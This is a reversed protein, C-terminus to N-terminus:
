EDVAEPGEGESETLGDHLLDSTLTGLALKVRRALDELQEPVSEIEAAKFASFLMSQLAANRRQVYGLYASTQDRGARSALQSFLMATRQELDDQLQGEAPFLYELVEDAPLEQDASRPKIKSDPGPPVFWWALPLRFARSLALLEDASFEKVRASRHAREAAAYVPVSWAKGLCESIRDAAEQQTWGRLNRAHLLNYSVVGDATLSPLTRAEQAGALQDVIRAALGEDSESAM